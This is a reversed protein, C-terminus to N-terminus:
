LNKHFDTRIRMVGTVFVTGCPFLRCNKTKCYTIELLEFLMAMLTRGNNLKRYKSYNNVTHHFVLLLTSRFFSLVKDADNHGHHMLDVIIQGILRLAKLCNSLVMLRRSCLRAPPRVLRTKSDITAWEASEATSTGQRSARQHHCSKERWLTTIGTAIPKTREMTTVEAILNM